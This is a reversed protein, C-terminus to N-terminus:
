LPVKITQGVKVKSPDSIRNIKKITDVSTGYQRAIASLTQGPKVKHMGYDAAKAAAKSATSTASGTPLKITSGVKLNDTGPNLRRLTEVSTDNAKAVSWLTDGSKVKYSGTAPASSAIQTASAKVKLEQGQRVRAASKIGNIRMLEPVTTKYMAAIQTLTQGRGVKHTTTLVADEDASKKAATEVPRPETAEDSSKAVVAAPMAAVATKAALVTASAAGAPEAASPKAPASAAAPVAAAAAAAAKADEVDKAAAKAAEVAQSTKSSSAVVAPEVEIVKPGGPIKLTQGVKVSKSSKLGNLKQLSSVSTGYRSAIQSLTQGRSVKHTRTGSSAVMTPATSRDLRAYAVAFDNRAGRPLNLRYGKPVRAGGKVVRDGLAPNMAALDEVSVGAARALDKLSTHADIVFDDPMYTDVAIVGCIEPARELSDHAALFEAYFNRSAFGFTKGKYHRAIVGFHTTGMTKVANAVGGLGHNYSTIALPWSGLADYSKRLYRAAGETARVPDRRDDYLDNVEMYLRGTSPMFQWIGAAGVSSRAGIQYGSEVLPLAVLEEPVGQSRLISKMMPMYAAARKYADCFKDGLGRQSRIQSALTKAYVPEHGIKAIAKVINKEEETRAHGEGIRNLMAEIREGEAKRRATIAADQQPYPLRTVIDEVSLVSYVLDLHEVDHFAIQKSTWKTFVNRWFAVNSELEKYRPFHSSGPTSGPAATAPAISCVSLAVAAAAAAVAGGFKRM